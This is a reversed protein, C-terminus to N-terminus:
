NNFTAYNNEIGRYNAILAKMALYLVVGNCLHWLFHTGIAWYPCLALDVTRFCLALFFVGTATFLLYRGKKGQQWHYVGLGLLIAIGPAYTISGNFIQSFQFTVLIAVLLLVVLLVTGLNKLKIVQRSYIGLYAIQFLAIPIVDLLKTLSTAFTHFLSSGVGIALLLSILLWISPSLVKRQKALYWAAYGAVFFALNSLANVPEAWLGAGVRECYLDIM